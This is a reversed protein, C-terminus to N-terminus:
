ANGGDRNVQDALTLSALLQDKLQQRLTASIPSVVNNAKAFDNNRYYVESCLGWPPRRIVKYNTSLRRHMAQWTRSCAPAVQGGAQDTNMEM